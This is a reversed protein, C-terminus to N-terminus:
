CCTRLRAHELASHRDDDERVIGVAHDKRGDRVDVGSPARVQLLDFMGCSQVLVNTHVWPCCLRVLWAYLAKLVHTFYSLARTEAPSGAAGVRQERSHFLTSAGNATRGPAQEYCVATDPRATEWPPVVLCCALMDPSAM